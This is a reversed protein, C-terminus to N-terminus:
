AAPTPQAPADKRAIWDRALFIGVPGAMTMAGIILWLYAAHRPGTSPCFAALLYGSTPSVILKALLFPLAALSVYTAERGRPASALTFEYLRPSWLAEGVTLVLIMALQYPYSEGFCLIFPSLSSLFAGFLLVNLPKLRRTLVTGLPALVLILQSNLSWLSARPFHEGLERSVYKPWTFHMHQFLMRVLSILGIFLLFRWFYRDRMVLRFADFPHVKEVKPEPPDEPSRWEEFRRRLLTTVGFACVASVFGLGVIAGHATRMRPGPLPLDVSRAMLHHTAPDTFHARIADMPRGIVAGALNFSVYWLSFAFSRARKSSARQIATQLVPSTSGYAFAYSLLATAALTSTTALSMGLRAVACGLFTLMLMRRVGISDAVPGALAAFATAFVSLFMSWWGAAADSMGFDESLWHTLTQLFSYIGLYEFFTALYVLWLERPSALLARVDEALTTKPAEEQGLSM